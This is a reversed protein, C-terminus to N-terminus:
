SRRMGNHFRYRKKLELVSKNLINPIVFAAGKLGKCIAIKKNALLYRKALIVM